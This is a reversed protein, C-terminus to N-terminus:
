RELKRLINLTKMNNDYGLLNGHSYNNNARIEFEEIWDRQGSANAKTEFLSFDPSVPGATQSSKAFQMIDQSAKDYNFTLSAVSKLSIEGSQYLSDAIDVIDDFTANRVDYKSSLGEWVKSSDNTSLKLEQMKGESESSRISTEVSDSTLNTNRSYWVNSQTSTVSSINM